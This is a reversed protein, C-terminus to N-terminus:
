IKQSTEWQGESCHSVVLMEGSKVRVYRLAFSVSVAFVTQQPSIYGVVFM